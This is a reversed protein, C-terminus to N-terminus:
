WVGRTRGCDVCAVEIQPPMSTLVNGTPKHQTDHGCQPCALFKVPEWVVAFAGPKIRSELEAVRAELRALQQEQDITM